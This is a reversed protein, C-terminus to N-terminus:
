TTSSGAISVNVTVKCGKGNCGGSSRTAACDCNKSCDDNGEGGSSKGDDNDMNFDKGGGGNGQDNDTVGESKNGAPWIKDDDGRSGM